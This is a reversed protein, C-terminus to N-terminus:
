RDCTQPYGHCEGNHSRQETNVSPSVTLIADMIALDSEVEGQLLYESKSKNVSEYIRVAKERNNEMYLAIACMIRQKSSMVNRYSEIYKRLKDDLLEEAHSINGNVMACFALECAIENVYLQMIDDKHRYLAEFEVYAHKWDMKDILRSAHMIPISVEMNNKWDIKESWSFWKDPMEKPRIGKQILANSRLQIVLAQKGRTNNRLHLMNYGDNGIKMPIANLLLLIFDTLIFTFVAEYMFPSLELWLIPIAIILLILNMINGGANYLATPIKDLPLDPPTLLCQGGTGAISFRKVKLAGDIRIFTLNFIRLSVFKYGSLLGFILHGTEHAPVIIFLSLIFSLIGTLAALATKSFPISIFKSVYESLTIDTFIVIGATSIILGVSIGILLGAILKLIKKINMRIYVVIFM